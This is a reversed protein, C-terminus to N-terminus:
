QRGTAADLAFLQNRPALVYMVGDIVLPTATLGKEGTSFSWVPALRSVTRRNVQALPSYSWAADNGFFSTWNAPNPPAEAAIAPSALLAALLVARARRLRSTM